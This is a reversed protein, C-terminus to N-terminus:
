LTIPNVVKADIVEINYLKVESMQDFCQNHYEMGEQYDKPSMGYIECNINAKEISDNLGSISWAASKAAEGLNCYSLHVNYMELESRLSVVARDIEAETFFGSRELNEIQDELLDIKSQLNESTM